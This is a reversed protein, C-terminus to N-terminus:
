TPPMRASPATGTSLVAEGDCAPVRRSVPTLM